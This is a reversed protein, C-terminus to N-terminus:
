WSGRAHTRNPTQWGKPHVLYVVGGSGRMWANFFQTRDYVRPVAADSNGAPDNVIVDGSETFGRIVLLHGNTAPIPAGSLQGSGWSLSAVVPVGAKVWEEAQVLSGFRGVSGELGFSSAYGVNFPWNGNGRYAYDYTGSAVTPVPKNWAKVGRRNAWYAMVMSLSTPSCWVEGGGPYVMQSRAPVPLSRGWALRDSSLGLSSGHRYSDSNAFSVAKVLPSAGRKRSALKLRYQYANAFIRGRSQLTDTLAEWQSTRQGDVSRRKITQNSSWVGMNFWPSWAGGTRVRVRVEIWTGAPTAANWSPVLTDFAVSTPYVKSTLSGVRAGRALRVVGGRGVVVGSKKGSALAQYTSHRDFDVYNGAAEAEKPGIISICALAAATAAVLCIWLPLTLSM